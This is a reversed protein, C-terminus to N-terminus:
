FQIPALIVPADLLDTRATQMRTGHYFWRAYVHVYLM